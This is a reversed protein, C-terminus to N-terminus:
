ITNFGKFVRSNDITVLHGDWTLRASTSGSITATANNDASVTLFIDFTGLTTILNFTVSTSLNKVDNIIKYGVISGEATIGGVGNYGQRIDSGTQLVGRERDVRIFNLTSTVTIRSGYKNQLFDAELVYRGSHLLSDLVQYNAKLEANRTEKRSKKDQKTDQSNSFVSFGLIGFLVLLGALYLKITKM